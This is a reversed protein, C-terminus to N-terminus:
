SGDEPPQSPRRGQFLICIPFRELLLEVSLANAEFSYTERTVLNVPTTVEALQPLHIFTNHWTDPPIKPERADRLMPLSLRPIVVILTEGDLYRVFAILRDALPGSLALPLYRGRDFLGPREARLKLLSQILRQKIHGSRWNAMLNELSARGMLATQRTDYDVLGRNDPDVLSFDWFDCGQYLDPIGPCTLRLIVQGLSNLAGAAAIRSVYAEAEMLWGGSTGPDLISTLFYRCASEYTANPRAWSTEQKAERLSKELWGALRETFTALGTRDSSELSPPWAGVIMQYIMLKVSAPVIPHDAQHSRLWRKVSQTWHSADESLVALRCRLDEGRKHDHTATTLMAQPFLRQRRQNAAHFREVSLAFQAPNSGVDNRSLLRGYRYFATDEIAKATLTASLQQFRILAEATRPDAKHIERLQRCVADVAQQDSDGLDIAARRQYSILTQQDDGSLGQAEGYLRYRTFYALLLSLGNHMADQAPTTARRREASLFLHVLDELQRPFLTQLTELRVATALTAFDRDDGSIDIWLATFPPEGAPDHLVGAADAMFDYGTTGDVQWTTPLVEESELIKEVIIYPTEPGDPRKSALQKLDRRLRRCYGKPDALGDVHDLRVGDILGDQFLQRVLVHSANFVEAREMRLAVLSSIDFFRRWNIHRAADTWATLVYHQQSLLDLLMGPDTATRAMLAAFAADFEDEQQERIAALRDMVQSSDDERGPEISASAQALPPFSEGLLSLAQSYSTPSLPTLHDFYRFALRRRDPDYALTIENNKLCDGLASGLIPLLVKHRLKAEAPRWNIDFFKAFRSKQGNELVDFWWPNEHSAAMHNPVIDIILGMHRAKLRDSLRILAEPGGIAPNICTPDVVDYGHTSGRHAAFIPSAYIHSIGLQALYPVIAAADDLTFADNFQLRITARPMM